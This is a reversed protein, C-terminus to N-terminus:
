CVQRRRMTPAQSSIDRWASRGIWGDARSIARSRRQRGDGSSGTAVDGAHVGPWKRRKSHNKKAGPDPEVGFQHPSESSYLNVSIPRTSSAFIPLNYSIPDAGLDTDPHMSDPNPLRWSGQSMTLAALTGEASRATPRVLHHHEIPPPGMKAHESSLRGRVSRCRRPVAAALHYDGM